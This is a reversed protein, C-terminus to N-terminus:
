LLLNQKSSHILIVTAEACLVCRQKRSGNFARHHHTALYAKETPSADVVSYHSVGNVPMKDLANMVDQYSASPMAKSVVMLDGKLGEKEWEKQKQRVPNGLGTQVNYDTQKVSNAAIAKHLVGGYATLKDKGLVATM